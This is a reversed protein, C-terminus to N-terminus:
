KLTPEIEIPIRMITPTDFRSHAGKKDYADPHKRVGLPWLDKKEHVCCAVYFIVGSNMYDLM